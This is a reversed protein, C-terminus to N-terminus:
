VDSAQRSAEILQRSTIAEVFWYMGRTSEESPGCGLIRNPDEDSSPLRPALGEPTPYKTQPRRYSTATLWMGAENRLPGLRANDRLSGEGGPWHPAGYSIVLDIDAAENPELKWSLKRASTGNSVDPWPGPNIAAQRFRDRQLDWRWRIRAVRFIGPALEEGDIAYGKRPLSHLVFNGRARAGAIAKRDAKLHFRHGNNNEDNPGHLSLHFASDEGLPDLYFDTKKATIRWINGLAWFTDSAGSAATTFAVWIETREV